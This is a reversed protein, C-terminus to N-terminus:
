KVAICKLIKAEEKEAKRKKKEDVNKKVDTLVSLLQETHQKAAKANARLGQAATLLTGNLLFFPHPWNTMVNLAVQKFLKSDLM